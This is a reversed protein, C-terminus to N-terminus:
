GAGRLDDGRQVRSSRPQNAVSQSCRCADQLLAAPQASLPDELQRAAMPAGALECVQHAADLLLQLSTLRQQGDIITWRPMGGVVGDQHQLVVAGLFHASGPKGTELLREAQRQVDEWLPEWQGEQSWVYPRQFLPVLLQQPAFFIDHPTRVRTEM